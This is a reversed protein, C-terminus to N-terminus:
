KTQFLEDLYDARTQANYENRCITSGSHMISRCVGNSDKEDLHSRKLYCHGLEHFVLFERQMPTAKFWYSQNVLVRDPHDADHQCQGTISSELDQSIFGEVPLSAFDISVNREKGEDAFRDFLEQLEADVFVDKDIAEKTCSVLANLILMTLVLLSTNYLKSYLKCKM